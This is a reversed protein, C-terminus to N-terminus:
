AATARLSLETQISVEGKRSTALLVFVQLVQSSVSRRACTSPSDSCLGPCVRSLQSEWEPLLYFLTAFNSMNRTRLQHSFQMLTTLRVKARDRAGKKKKKRLLRAFM